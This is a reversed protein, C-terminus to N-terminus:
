FRLNLGAQFYQQGAGVYLAVPPLNPWKKRILYDVYFTGGFAMGKVGYAAWRNTPMLPNTEQCTRAHLCSQTTEIDAVAGGWWLLSALLIESTIM